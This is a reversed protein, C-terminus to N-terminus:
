HKNMADLWRDVQREAEEKAIGYREKVRGILQERGGQARTLDDDTLKGWQEMASGRIQDWKGQIQTWNMNRSGALGRGLALFALRRWATGIAAKPAPLAPPERM